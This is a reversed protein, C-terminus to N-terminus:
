FRTEMGVSVISNDRRSTGPSTVRAHGAQALLRTQASLRYDSGLQLARVELDGAADFDYRAAILQGKYMWKGQTWGLSLLLSDEDMAGGAATEDNFRSHQALAGVHLADQRYVAALRLGDRALAENAPLPTFAPLAAMDLIDPVTGDVVDREAALALYLPGSAYVASASIGDDDAGAATDEGSQLVLSLTLVDALRPSEYGIANRLRNDGTMFLDLEAYTMDRFLDAEGQSTKYPSDYAGLRLNGWRGRLGLFRDRARLDAAGATDGAVAWEIKYFASYGESLKEDGRVGIRSSNSTVQVEEIGLAAADVHDVTLNLRGYLTPAAQLGSSLLLAALATLTKRPM